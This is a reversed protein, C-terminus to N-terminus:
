KVTLSGEQWGLLAEKAPSGQCRPAHKGQREPRRVQAGVATIAVSMPGPRRDTDGGALTIGFKTQAAALGRAFRGLYEAAPATPFALSMLYVLPSAGKAVLDSVNVAIAKWAVDEPADGPMFHVGEAMADTTLVLEHGPPPALLACDDDLGFAGPFGEALPAFYGQIIAEEGGVSRDGEPM